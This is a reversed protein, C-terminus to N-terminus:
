IGAARRRKAVICVRKQGPRVLRGRTLRPRQLHDTRHPCPRKQGPNRLTRQPPQNPHKKPPKEVVLSWFVLVAAPALIPIQEM